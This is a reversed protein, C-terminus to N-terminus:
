WITDHLNFLHLSLLNFKRCDFRFWPSLLPSTFSLSLLVFSPLLLLFLSPLQLCRSLFTVLSKFILNNMSFRTHLPLSRQM